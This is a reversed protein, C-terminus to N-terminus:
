AHPKVRAIFRAMDEPGLIVLRWSALEPVIAGLDKDIPRDDRLLRLNEEDLGIFLTPQGNTRGAAILM